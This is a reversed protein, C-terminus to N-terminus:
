EVAISLSPGTSWTGATRAVGRVLYFGGNVRGGALSAGNWVFTQVKGQGSALSETVTNGSCGGNSHWVVVGQSDIVDVYLLCDSPGTLTVPDNSVNRATVTITVSEGLPLTVKDVEIFVNVSGPEVIPELSCSTALLAACAGVLQRFRM